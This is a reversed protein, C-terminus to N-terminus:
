PNTLGGKYTPVSGAVTADGTKVATSLNVIQRKLDAQIDAISRQLASAYPAARTVRLDGLFYDYAGVLSGGSSTVLVRLCAMELVAIQASPYRSDSIDLNTGVLSNVYATAHNIHVQITAQAITLGYVTCNGNTDPGSANLHAVVDTITVFVGPQPPSPAAPIGLIFWAFPHNVDPDAMTINIQFTTLTSNSPYYDRGQLDDQPQLFINSITPAFSLGHPVTVSTNGALITATGQVIVQSM